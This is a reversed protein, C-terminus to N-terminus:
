GVAPRRRRQARDAATRCGEVLAWVVLPLFLLGTMWGAATSLGLLLVYLRDGRTMRSM